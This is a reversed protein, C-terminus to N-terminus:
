NSAEYLVTLLFLQEENQAFSQLKDLTCHKHMLYFCTPLSLSHLPSAPSKLFNNIKSKSFWKKEWEELMGKGVIM